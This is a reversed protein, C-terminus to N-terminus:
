DILDSFIVNVSNRSLCDNDEGRDNEERCADAIKTSYNSIFAIM